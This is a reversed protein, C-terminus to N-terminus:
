GWIGSEILYAYSPLQQIDQIYMWFGNPALSKTYEDWTPMVKIRKYWDPHGELGDLQILTKIYDIPDDTSYLEGFVLRSMKSPLNNVVIPVGGTTFMAMGADYPLVCEGLRNCLRMLDNNGQGKKLTGYVFVPLNM